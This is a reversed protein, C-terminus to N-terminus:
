AQGDETDGGECEDRKVGVDPLSGVEEIADGGEILAVQEGCREGTLGTEVEVPSGKPREVPMKLGVAKGERTGDVKSEVPKDRDISIMPSGRGGERPPSSSCDHTRPTLFPPLSKCTDHSSMPPGPPPFSPAHTRGDSPVQVTTRTLTDDTTPPTTLASDPHLPHGSQAPNAIARGMLEPSQRTAHRYDLDVSLNHPATPTSLSLPPPPPPQPQSPLPPPPPTPLPPSLPPPPPTPPRLSPPQPPHPSQPLLIPQSSDSAPSLSSESSLQSHISLSVSVSPCLSPLPPLCLLTGSVTNPCSPPFLLLPHPLPPGLLSIAPPLTFSPPSSPNLPCAHSSPPRHPIMVLPTSLLIPSDELEEFPNTLKIPPLQHNAITPNLASAIILVDLLHPKPTPHNSDHPALNPSSPLPNSSFIPTSSSLSPYLPSSFPSPGVSSQVNKKLIPIPVIILSPDITLRHGNSSTPQSDSVSPSPILALFSINASSTPSTHPPTTTPISSLSSAVCRSSSSPIVHSPLSSSPCSIFSLTILDAAHLSPPQPDFLMPSTDVDRSPNFFSTSTDCSPLLSITCINPPSFSPVVPNFSTAPRNPYLDLPNARWHLSPRSQHSTPWPQQM